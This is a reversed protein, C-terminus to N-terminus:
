GRALRAFNRWLIAANAAFDAANTAMDDQLREMAGPGNTEELARRYEPVCAWDRVVGAEAEVHYQLGWARDAVQMAQVRCLSSSALVRAGEPPQAVRVSHWQLAKSRAPLGAFLPDERGEATLEIDFVGVEPPRQPGCTGGLADALLQHGLCVGLFPRNLERVWRRIVRKEEILWPYADVDWVDMAGGMVWLADYPELPPIVGGEDLEVADWAVGDAAMFARFVGPHESALHQLVLIRM